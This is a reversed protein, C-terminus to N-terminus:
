RFYRRVGVKTTRNEASGVFLFVSYSEGIKLSVEEQRIDAETGLKFNYHKNELLDARCFPQEPGFGLIDLTTHPSGDGDWHIKVGFPDDNLFAFSPIELINKKRREDRRLFNLVEAASSLEQDTSAKQAYNKARQKKKNAGTSPVSYSAAPSPRKGCYTDKKGCDQPEEEEPFDEHAMLAGSDGGGPAKKRNPSAGWSNSAGKVRAMKREQELLNDTIFKEFFPDFGKM